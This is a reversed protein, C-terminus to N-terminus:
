SGSRTKSRPSSHSMFHAYVGMDAPREGDISCKCGVVGSSPKQLGRCKECGCMNQGLSPGILTRGSRYTGAVLDDYHDDAPNAPGFCKRALPKLVDRM